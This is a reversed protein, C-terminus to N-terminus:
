AEPEGIGRLYKALRDDIDLLNQWQRQELTVREAKGKGKMKVGQLLGRIRLHIFQLLEGLQAAQGPSLHNPLEPPLLTHLAARAAPDESWNLEFELSISNGAQEVEEAELPIGGSLDVNRLEALRRAIEDRSGCVLVSRGLQVVDGPRLVWLQVTEGNVKTGNTSELDTLVLRSEDDQIKLHFRSVREDNLQVSNGEERGITVPTPIEEFVRGRDPGDIVRLTVMTM